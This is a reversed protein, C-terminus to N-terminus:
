GEDLLLRITKKGETGPAAFTCARIHFNADTQSPAPRYGLKVTSWVSQGFRAISRYDGAGLEGRTFPARLLFFLQIGFHGILM